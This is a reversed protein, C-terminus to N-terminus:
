KGFPNPLDAGGYTDAANPDKDNLPEETIIFQKYTYPNVMSESFQLHGKDDYQGLSLRYNSGGTDVLWGEFAKDPKAKATVDSSIATKNGNYDISMTGIKEDTFGPGPNKAKKVDITIPAAKVSQLQITMTLIIATIIAVFIVDKKLTM